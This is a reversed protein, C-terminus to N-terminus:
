LARSWGGRTLAYVRLLRKFAMAADFGFAFSGDANLFHSAGKPDAKSAWELFPQLYRSVAEASADTLTATMRVFRGDEFTISSTSYEISGLGAMQLFDNRESARCTVTRGSTVCESYRIETGMAREWDHLSRIRERGVLALDDGLEVVIHESLFPVVRSWDHSNIAAEYAKVSSILDPAGGAPGDPLYAFSLVISLLVANM